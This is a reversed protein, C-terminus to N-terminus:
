SVFMSSLGSRFVFPCFAGVPLLSSKGAAQKGVGGGGGGGGSGWGGGFVGSDVTTSSMSGSWSSGLPWLWRATFLEVGFTPITGM